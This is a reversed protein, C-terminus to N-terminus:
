SLKNEPVLEKDACKKHFVNVEKEGLEVIRRAENMKELTANVSIYEENTGIEKKCKDCITKRM